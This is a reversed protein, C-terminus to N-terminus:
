QEREKNINIVPHEALTADVGLNFAENWYNDFQEKTLVVMNSYKEVPTEEFMLFDSSEKKPVKLWCDQLKIEM